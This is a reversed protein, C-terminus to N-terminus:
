VQEEQQARLASFDVSRDDVVFIGKAPDIVYVPLEPFPGFPMPPQDSQLSWYTGSPREVSPGTATVPISQELVPEAAALARAQDLVSLVDMGAASSSQVSQIRATTVQAQVLGPFGFMLVAVMLRRVNVM